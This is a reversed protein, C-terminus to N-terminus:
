VKWEETVAEQVGLAAIVSNAYEIFLETQQEAAGTYREPSLNNSMQEKTLGFAPDAAIRDILDNPLGDRKVRNGAAASHQRIREHLEQRNGGNKVADMMINETAMFPLEELIHKEIVKPYVQIGATVSGLVNLIADACLFAESLSIRRNASDDLTRELWQAAATQAPNLADIILYRALSCIRECRMPNRKYPMASSGIQKSEFPEELEKLHSLLRMDTAFKSASQALGSLASLVCYDLKRSYTQGTVAIPAAFGMKESVLKDLKLVKEFDGNFLEMFSAQTGTAGKAGRPKLRAAKATIEELDSLFDQIWLAARKGVTTLQAPQFHTFGLTPQAKWRLAHEELQRIVTVLKAAVLQLAERMIIVDTNDTVYCSTAGLHIIGAASPCQEGYTHVQAMVDHRLTRELEEARNFDIDDIHSKLETIQEATINLGLEQESEALWIWLRRWTSFKKQPSFLYQM